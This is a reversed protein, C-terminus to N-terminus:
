ESGYWGQDYPHKNPGLVNHFKKCNFGKEPWAVAPTHGDKIVQHEDDDGPCWQLPQVEKAIVAPDTSPYERQHLKVAQVSALLAAIAFYKM